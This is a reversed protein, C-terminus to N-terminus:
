CTMSETKALDCEGSRDCLDSYALSCVGVCSLWDTGSTVDQDYTVQCPIINPPCSNYCVNWADWISNGTDTSYATTLCETANVVLDSSICDDGLM